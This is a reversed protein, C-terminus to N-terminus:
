LVDACQGRASSSAAMSPLDATQFDNSLLIRGVRPTIRVRERVASMLAVSVEVLAHPDPRRNTEAPEGPERAQPSPCGWAARRSVGHGSVGHGQSM